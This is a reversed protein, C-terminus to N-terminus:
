VYPYIGKRLSAYPHPSHQGDVVVGRFTVDFSASADNHRELAQISVMQKPITRVLLRSSVALSFIFLLLYWVFYLKQRSYLNM